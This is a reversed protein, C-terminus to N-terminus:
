LSGRLTKARPKEIIIQAINRPEDAGSKVDLVFYLTIHDVKIIIKIKAEIM